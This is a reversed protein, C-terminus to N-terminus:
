PKLCGTIQEHQRAIRMYSSGCVDEEPCRCIERNHPSCILIGLGSCLGRIFLSTSHEIDDFLISKSCSSTSQCEASPFLTSM